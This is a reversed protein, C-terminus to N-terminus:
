KTGAESIKLELKSLALVSPKLEAPTKMYKRKNLLLLEPRSILMLNDPDCNLPDGDRIAVCFGPPIPGHLQEGYTFTSQRSNQFADV